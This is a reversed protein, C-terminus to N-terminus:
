SPSGTRSNPLGDVGAEPESKGGPLRYLASVDPAAFPDAHVM